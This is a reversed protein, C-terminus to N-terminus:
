HHAYCRLICFVVTINVDTGAPVCTLTVSLLLFQYLKIEVTVQHLPATIWSAWTIAPFAKNTNGLIQIRLTRFGFCSIQMECCQSHTIFMNKLPIHKQLVFPNWHFIIISLIHNEFFEQFSGVTRKFQPLAVWGWVCQGGEYIQM